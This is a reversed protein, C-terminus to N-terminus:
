QAEEESTQSPVTVRLKEAVPAYPDLTWDVDVAYHGNAKTALATFIPTTDTSPLVPSDERPVVHPM